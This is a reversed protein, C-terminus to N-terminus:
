PCTDVGDIVCSSAMTKDSIVLANTFISRFSPSAEIEGGFAFDQHGDGLVM